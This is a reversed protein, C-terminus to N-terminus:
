TRRWSDPNQATWSPFMMRRSVGNPIRGSSTASAQLPSLINIHMAAVTVAVTMSIGSGAHFRSVRSILATGIAM